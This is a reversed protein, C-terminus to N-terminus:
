DLLLPTGSYQARLAHALTWLKAALTEGKRRNPRLHPVLRVGDSIKIAGLIYPLPIAGAIVQRDPRKLDAAGFHQCYGPHWPQALPCREVPFHAYWQDWTWSAERPSKRSSEHTCFFRVVAEAAFPTTHAVVTRLRLALAQVAGLAGDKLPADIVYPGLRVAEPLRQYSSKMPLTRLFAHLPQYDGFGEFRHVWHALGGICL